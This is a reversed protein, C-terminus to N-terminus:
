PRSDEANLLGISLVLAQINITPEDIVIRAQWGYVHVPNGRPCLSTPASLHKMGKNWCILNIRSRLELLFFHSSMMLFGWFKCKQFLNGLSTFSLEIDRYAPKPTCEVHIQLSPLSICDCAVEFSFTDRNWYGSQQATCLMVHCDAERLKAPWTQPKFLENGSDGM